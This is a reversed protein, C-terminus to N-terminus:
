SFLYFPLAAALNLDHTKVKETQGEKMTDMFSKTRTIASKSQQHWGCHSQMNIMFPALNLLKRNIFPRTKGGRVVGNTCIASMSLCTITTVVCSLLIIAIGLGTISM